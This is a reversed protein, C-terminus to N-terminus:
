QTHNLPAKKVSQVYCSVSLERSSWLYLCDVGSDAVTEQNERGIEEEQTWSNKWRMFISKDRSGSLSLSLSPDEISIRSVHMVRFPRFFLCCILPPLPNKKQELRWGKGDMWRHMQSEWAEKARIEWRDRSEWSKRSSRKKERPKWQLVSLRLIFVPETQFSSSSISQYLPPSSLLFIRNKPETSMEECPGSLRHTKKCASDGESELACRFLSCFSRSILDSLFPLLFPNQPDLSQHISQDCSSVSWFRSDNPLLFWIGRKSEEGHVTQDHMLDFHGPNREGGGRREQMSKMPFRIGCADREILRVEFVFWPWDDVRVWSNSLLLFDSSMSRDLVRNVLIM